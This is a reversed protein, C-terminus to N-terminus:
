GMPQAKSAETAVPLTLEVCVGEPTTSVKREVSVATLFRDGLGQQQPHEPFPRGNNCMKVGVTSPTPHILTVVCSTAKGHKFANIHLEKIVEPVIDRALDDREIVALVAPTAILELTLVSSWTLNIAAVLGTINAPQDPPSELTLAERISDEVSTVVSALSEADNAVARNLQMAAALITSQVDSHLTLALRKQDRWLQSQARVRFWELERDLPELDDLFRRRSHRLGEAIAPLWGL